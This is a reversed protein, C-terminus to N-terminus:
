YKKFLTEFPDKTFLYIKDIDPQCTKLNLTKM